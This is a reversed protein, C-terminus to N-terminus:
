APPNVYRALIALLGLGAFLLFLLQFIVSPQGQVTITWSLVACGAALAFFILGWVLLTPQPRPDFDSDPMDLRDLGPMRDLQPMNKM